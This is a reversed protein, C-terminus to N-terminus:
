TMELDLPFLIGLGVENNLLGNCGIQLIMMYFALGMQYLTAGCTINVLMNLVDLGHTM